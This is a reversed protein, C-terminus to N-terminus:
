GVEADDVYLPYASKAARADALDVTATAFPQATSTTALITSDPHIIWAPGGITCAPYEGRVASSCHFSGSVFAAVRGGALWHDGGSAETSRPTLVLNTGRKGYDRARELFWMETCLLMGISGVATEVPEFTTPGRDYWTAEWFGPEDPLYTKRHVADYGQNSSWVFGENFRRGRDTVPRSGAITAVGLEPLRAIWTEHQTVSAEWVAPDVTKESAFWASFPMEPLLLLDTQNSVLYRNLAAWEGPLHDPRGDLEVVTINM